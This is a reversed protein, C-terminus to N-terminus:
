KPKKGGPSLRGVQKRMHRGFGHFLGKKPRRVGEIPLRISMVQLLKGMTALTRYTGFKITFAETTVATENNFIENQIDVLDLLTRQGRDFQRSYALRVRRNARM